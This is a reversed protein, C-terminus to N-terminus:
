GILEPDFATNTKWMGWIASVQHRAVNRRANKPSLGQDIWQDYRQAFINEKQEIASLAAGIVVDRLLRNCAQEVCVIQRGEGSQHRCLGIGTYKWLASKSKFRWPTELYSILTASRM